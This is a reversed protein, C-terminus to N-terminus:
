EDSSENDRRHDLINQVIDPMALRTGIGWAVVGLVIALIGGLFGVTIFVAVLLALLGLLFLNNWLLANPRGEIVPRSWTFFMEVFTGVAFPGALYWFLPNSLVNEM